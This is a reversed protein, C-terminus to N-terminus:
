AEVEERWLMEIAQFSTGYDIGRERCQQYYAEVSLERVCRERLESLNVRQPQPQQNKVVIKGSIHLKWSEEESKQDDTVLSYIQFTPEASKQSLILQVTQVKEEPLILAEYIVADEIVLNESKFVASAAAIAMELYAAAPLITRQYVSHHKLFAPTDSSLYSEFLIDKHASRLRQGLLPNVAEQRKSPQNNPISSKQATEIWYRQRQFPYTPLAVKRREYDQDFGLWDVQVCEVYLQALSQLIQQWDEQGPRLTPLWRGVGEPFCKRGMGLLIPKPGCELFIEYGERYLAEMGAAFRVSCRVHRCWYEPTAM